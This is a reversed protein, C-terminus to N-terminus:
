QRGMLVYVSPTSSESLGYLIEGAGFVQLSIPVNAPLVYGDTSDVAPGGIYIASACYLTIPIPDQNNGAIAEGATNEEFAWLATPTSDNLAVVSSVFAV